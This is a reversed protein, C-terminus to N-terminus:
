APLDGLAYTHEGSEESPYRNKDIYVQLGQKTSLNLKLLLSNFDAGPQIMYKFFLSDQVTAQMEVGPRLLKVPKAETMSVKIGFVLDDDASIVKKQPKIAVNWVNLQFLPDQPCLTVHNPGNRSSRFSNNKTNVNENDIDVFLCPNSDGRVTWTSVKVLCPEDVDFYFKYLMLDQGEEDTQTQSVSQGCRFFVPTGNQLQIAPAEPGCDLSKIEKNLLQQAEQDAKIEEVM